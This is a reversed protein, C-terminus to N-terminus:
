LTFSLTTRVTPHSATNGDSSLSSPRDTTLSFRANHRTLIDAILMLGLGRGNRKTSFFPTFIDSINEPPIGPGNDTIAITAHGDPLPSVSMAIEGNEQGISEVANKVANVIVRELLIPDGRFITGDGAATYTLKITEPVMERLFPMLQRFFEDASIDTAKVEPLKVVDAYGCVFQALSDCRESCSALSAAVATDSSHMEHLTDLVSCVAGVTNNIEHAITRVIKNFVDKEAKIIEDTLQEVLFFHRIFGREMFTLRSCRYIERDGTRVTVYSKDTLGSLVDLVAPAAMRRFAPNTQEIDGDFDCVAIGLPSAEIILNLLNNQEEARLREAKMTDMLGNFLDAVRDADAQGVHRLRSSYDQAKLLYMGNEIVRLARASHLFLVVALISAVAAIGGTYIPSAGAIGLIATCLIALLESIFLLRYKM